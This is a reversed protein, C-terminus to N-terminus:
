RKLPRKSSGHLTLKLLAAAGLPRVDYLQDPTQDLVELTREGFYAVIKEATRPGVGKILGSGLYKRIGQTTAPLVSRYNRAMFQWGHQTHHQWVGTLELAEGVAAGILTGVVTVLKEKDSANQPQAKDGDSGGDMSLKAITYGNESNQFTIREIVGTITKLNPM